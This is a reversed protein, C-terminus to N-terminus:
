GYAYDVTIRIDWEEEGSGMKQTETGRIRKGDESIELKIEYPKSNFDTMQYYRTDAKIYSGSSPTMIGELPCAVKQSASTDVLTIWERREPLINLDVDYVMPDEYDVSMRVPADGESPHDSPIDWHSQATGSYMKREREYMMGCDQDFMVNHYWNDYYSIVQDKVLFQDEEEDYVLTDYSTMSATWGLTHTAYLIDWGWSNSWSWTTSGRWEPNCKGQTDIEYEMNWMDTTKKNSNSVIIVVATVKEEPRTRCFKRETIDTWDEWHWIDGIKILAQRKHEETGKEKFKFVVKDIDDKIAHLRYHNSLSKAEVFGFDLNDKEHVAKDYSAGNPKAKPGDPFKPADQYKLEPEQNWNWLAYDAFFTKYGPTSAVVDRGDITKVDFLNDKVIGLNGTMQTLYLYWMYTSYERKENWTIMDVELEDFFSNLYEWESNYDPWVWHESWTATAEMMWMRPKVDYKLPIAFQFCHFLEHSVTSKTKKEGMTDNIEIMCRYKGGGTKMDATGYDSGTNLIFLYVKETPYKGLLNEFMPWAKHISENAWGAQQKSLANGKTYTILVWKMPSTSIIADVFDVEAGEVSPIIELQKLIAERDERTDQNHFSRPDDPLVYFPELIEKTEDSFENWHENMWWKAEQLNTRGTTPMAGRYRDPVQDPAYAALITLMVWEEKTIENSELADSIKAFSTPKPKTYNDNRTLLEQIEEDFQALDKKSVKESGSGATSEADDAAKKGCGAALLLFTTIIIISISVARKM